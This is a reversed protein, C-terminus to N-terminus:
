LGAAYKTLEYRGVEALIQERVPDPDAEKVEEPEEIVGGTVPEEAAPEDAEGSKAECADCKVALTATGKGAGRLVPSVEHVALKKLVRAVGADAQEEDPAAEELVDYGYSWEGLDGLGKVTRYHNRGHDTDMFFSLTAIAEDGKEDITGVGVPLAGGWSTHGYASVKVRQKGFAGSETVDGDLDKVGMTAFRAIVTGEEDDTAKIEPRFAKTQTDSM